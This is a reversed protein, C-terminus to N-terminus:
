QNETAVPEEQLQAPLTTAAPPTASAPSCASICTNYDAVSKEVCQKHDNDSYGGAPPCYMTNARKDNACNNLCDSKDDAFSVSTVTSLICLLMAVSIKTM